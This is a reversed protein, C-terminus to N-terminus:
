GASSDRVPRMTQPVPKVRRTDFRFNKSGGEPNFGMSVAIAELLTSKGSGNEGVIFTIKPHPELFDFSRVVDLSFTFKDFSQIRERLLTIKEIFQKAIIM